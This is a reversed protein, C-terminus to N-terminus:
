GTLAIIDAARYYRRGRLRVAPVLLKSREWNWLTRVKVGFLDAVQVAPLLESATVAPGGHADQADAPAPTGAPGPAPVVRAGTATQVAPSGGAPSPLQGGPTVPRSEPASM